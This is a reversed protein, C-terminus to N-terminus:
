QKDQQNVSSASKVPFLHLMGTKLSVKFYAILFCMVFNFFLFLGKQNVGRFHRLEYINLTKELSLLQVSGLIFLFFLLHNCPTSWKWIDTSLQMPCSFMLYKVPLFKPIENTVPWVECLHVFVDQCNTFSCIDSFNFFSFTNNKELWSSKSSM